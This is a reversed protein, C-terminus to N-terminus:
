RACRGRSRGNRPGRTRCAACGAARAADRRRRAPPLHPTAAAGVVFVPQRVEEVEFKVPVSFSVPESVLLTEIGPYQQLPVRFDHTIWEHGEQRTSVFASQNALSVWFEMEVTASTEITRTAAVASLAGAITMIAVLGAIVAHKM